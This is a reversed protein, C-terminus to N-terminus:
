RMGWRYRFVRLSVMVLLFAFSCQAKVLLRALDPRDFPSRVMILKIATCTEKFAIRIAQLRSWFLRSRRRRIRFERALAGHSRLFLLRADSLLWFPPTFSQVSRQEVAADWNLLAPDSRLSRILSLAVLLLAGVSVGVVTLPFPLGFYSGCCPASM